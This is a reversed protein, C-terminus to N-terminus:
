HAPNPPLQDFNHYPTVILFYFNLFIIIFLQILLSISPETMVFVKFCPSTPPQFTSHQFHLCPVKRRYINQIQLAVLLWIPNSVPGPPSPPWPCSLLKSKPKSCGPIAAAQIRLFWSLALGGRGFVTGAFVLSISFWLCNGQECVRPNQAMKRGKGCEWPENAM